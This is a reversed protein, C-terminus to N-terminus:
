DGLVDISLSNLELCSLGVPREDSFQYKELYKVKFVNQPM